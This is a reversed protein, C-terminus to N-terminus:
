IHLYDTFDTTKFLSTTDNNWIIFVYNDRVIYCGLFPKYDNMVAKVVKAKTNCKKDTLVVSLDEHKYYSLDTAYVSNSLLLLAYIVKKM